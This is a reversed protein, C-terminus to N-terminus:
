GHHHAGELMDCLHHILPRLVEVGDRVGGRSGPLTIVFTNAITGAVARSAVALPTSQMGRAFFSQVVGPLERQLVASVAEVTRDDRTLGTGGTTIIVRPLAEPQRTLQIFYDEIQADAVVETRTVFGESELWERLYPGTADVYDPTNNALRTSVVVVLAERPTQAPNAPHDPGSVPHQQPTM